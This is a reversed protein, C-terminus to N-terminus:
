IAEDRRAENRFFLAEEIHKREPKECGDVDAVTRILRLMRFYGRASIDTNEFLERLLETESESFDIYKDILGQPLESNFSFSENRYRYEQRKRADCIIERAEETSIGGPEGFLQEYSVPKIQLRIDIRDMIPHSIKNQYKYIEASSCRCKSRDPYFGCPCNNRAAVLMFRAPYTYTAKIRSITIKKDEMPQRLSEIVGRPFEPFEDLFLVGGTALSIEGPKANTGGGMLAVDSVSQHPSRFPRVRVPGKKLDLKGSVSYIKTLELSEEYTLPPMVGPICKAAMSKGSGAAGTLLINHFGSVAIIIGRKMMEQGRIEKLDYEPEEPIFFDSPMEYPEPYVGSEFIDMIETFSRVGIVEIGNIYSAELVNGYPVIVRRIGNNKAMEVVPLVGTVPLIDGNLGMEGLFLTESMFRKLEESIDKKRSLIISVAIPLDFASGEKRVDAPSLNVTIRCPPLPFGINKMATRVRDAAERVSSSLYGVLFLGPMGPGTDAEVCILMGEIGIATGSLIKSYM